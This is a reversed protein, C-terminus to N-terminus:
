TALGHAAAAEVFSTDIMVAPDFDKAKENRKALEDVFGQWEAAKLTPPVRLIRNTWFDYAVGLERQDTINACDVLTKQSVQKNRKQVARGAVDANVVRQRLDRQATITSRKVVLCHAPTAM